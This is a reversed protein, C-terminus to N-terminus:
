NCRVSRFQNCCNILFCVLAVLKLVGVLRKNCSKCKVGYFSVIFVGFLELIKGAQLNVNIEISVHMYVCDNCFSCFDNVFVIKLVLLECSFHQHFHDYTKDPYNLVCPQVRKMLVNNEKSILRFTLNLYINLNRWRESFYSGLM